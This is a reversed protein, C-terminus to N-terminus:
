ASVPIPISDYRVVVRTIHFPSRTLVVSTAIRGQRPNLSGWTSIRVPANTPLNQPLMLVASGDDAAQTVAWIKAAGQEVLVPLHYRRESQNCGHEFRRLQHWIRRPEVGGLHVLTERGLPIVFESLLRKTAPLLPELALGLRVAGQTPHAYVIRAQVAISDDFGLFQLWVRDADVSGAPVLLGAGHETLDVLVGVGVEGEETSYRVPM